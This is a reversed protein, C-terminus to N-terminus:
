MALQLRRGLAKAAKALTRVSPNAGSRELKAYSPQAIGLRRAMEVQTLKADERAWRLLLPALAAADPEIMEVGSELAPTPRPVPLGADLLVQLYGTLAEAAYTRAEELTAGYTLIGNYPPLGQGMITDEDPTFRIPFAIKM